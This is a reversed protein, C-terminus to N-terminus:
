QIVEDATALLTEPITLGLAKFTRLNVITEYRTSAQVPLDAPKDGRLIRDVYGAGLRFQDINNPGYSVLGGDIAFRREPYVAPLRYRAALEIITGRNVYGKFNALVILGGNPARAFAAISREITAAERMDLPSLEVQLSPAMSQIAGFMGGSSFVTPDRLVAARAVNPAIQKLLELWKGAISYEFLTFGTANGGPRALNEVVGVGVPDAVQVFVIPQTRTAQQLSVVSTSGHALLVDLGLSVLEAAYKRQLDYDAMAFRYDFRVNRGEVWGLRQLEKQFVALTEKAEPDDEALGLLVGIRRLRDPQQARAVVPWAAAGLGAIFERRRMM